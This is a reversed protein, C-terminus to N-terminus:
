GARRGGPLFSIQFCGEEDYYYSQRYSNFKIPAGFEKMLNLYEYVSRESIGLKDALETPTGTAKIRILQDIRELRQFIEKQM